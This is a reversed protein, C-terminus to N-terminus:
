KPKWERALKQAEAIQDPTMKRAVLDRNKGALNRNSVDSAPFSAAALNFWMHASVYDQSVAEGSAFWLGLNYQAQAHNRDAALRYWKVAEAHDQLVGHGEAYMVGLNFQSRPDGQDAALRFWKAAESDDPPVGRGHYYMLGLASQARADGQEALPRLRRLATAYNGRQYAAYAVDADGTSGMLADGVSGTFGLVQVVGAIARKLPANYVGLVFGVGLILAALAAALGYRWHARHGAMTKCVALEAQLAAIREKLAAAEVPDVGRRFLHWRRSM